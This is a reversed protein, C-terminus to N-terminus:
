EPNIEHAQHFDDFQLRVQLVMHPYQNQVYTLAAKLPFSGPTVQLEQVPSFLHFSINKNKNGSRNDRNQSFM